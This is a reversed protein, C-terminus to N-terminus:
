LTKISKLAVKQPGAQALGMLSLAVSLVYFPRLHM